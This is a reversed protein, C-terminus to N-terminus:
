LTRPRGALNWSTAQGEGGTGGNRRALEAEERQRDRGAQRHEALFQSFAAEKNLATIVAYLPSGVDGLPKVCEPCASQCILRM